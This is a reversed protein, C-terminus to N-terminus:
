GRGLLYGGPPEVGGRRMTCSWKDKATAHVATRFFGFTKLQKRWMLKVFMSVSAVGATLREEQKPGRLTGCYGINRRGDDQPSHAGERVPKGM